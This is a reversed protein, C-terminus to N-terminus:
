TRHRFRRGQVKRLGAGGQPDSSPELTVEVSLGDKIIRDSTAEARQEEM